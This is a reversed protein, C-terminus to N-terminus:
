LRQASAPDRGTKSSTIRELRAPWTRVVRAITTRWRNPRIEEPEQLSVAGAWPV